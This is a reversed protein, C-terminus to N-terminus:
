GRERAFIKVVAKAEALGLIRAVIFYVLVGVLTPGILVLIKSLSEPGLGLLGQYSGSVALTMLIASLTMKALDLLFAPSHYGEKRVELVVVLVLGNVTSAIASAIALGALGLPEILLQCFVINVFISVLGAFLPTKGDLKAFYVRSVITQVGYGIMGLSVFFLAVSTMDLDEAGFEGGGYVLHILPRALAMLGCMMPLMFFMAGHMSQRVTERIAERDEDVYLRSLKPFIVNSISLVFVGAIILYLNSSYEMAAVGSGGYLRSAFKSNITLNIPLVWTSVMVPLMLSLVQKMEATKKRLQARYRFGKKKLAPIQVLAQMLWGVLFALALGYIGFRDNFFVYYAIILLNSVASIMAPINFEDLSQLIGVFSYAVGTFLITPFMIRTLDTALAHTEADYGDAFLSVLSGSFLIGVFSLLFTALAIITIFSRAFSFAEERGEKKLVQSFVPIFSAAIASAFLVDFFVRPIRSATLFASAYMGTGYNVALLRDRFLGLVKGILTIIMVWSITRVVGQSSQEQHSEKIEHSM